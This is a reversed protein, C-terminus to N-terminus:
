FRWKVIYWFYILDPLKSTQVNQCYKMLYHSWVNHFLCNHNIASRHHDIVFIYIGHWQSWLIKDIELFSCPIYLMNKRQNLVIVTLNCLTCSSISFHRGITRFILVLHKQQQEQHTSPYFRCKKFQTSLIFAAGRIASGCATPQLWSSMWNAFKAWSKQECQSQPEPQSHTPSPGPFGWSSLTKYGM